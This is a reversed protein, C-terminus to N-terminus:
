PVICTLTIAATHGATITVSLPQSCPLEVGGSAGTGVPASSAQEIDPSRGSVQYRGPTLWASFRGSGGVRITVPRHGTATVTVTGPIPREGPQQGTPSIPGGEMVFRGTLHGTVAAAGTHSTLSPHGPPSATACGALALTALALIALALTAPLCACTRLSKM